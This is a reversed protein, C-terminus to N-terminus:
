DFCVILCQRGGNRSMNDVRSMVAHICSAHLLSIGGVFLMCYLPVVIPFFLMYVTVPARYAIVTSDVSICTGRKFNASVLNWSRMNCLRIIQLLYLRNNSLVCVCTCTCVCLCVCVCVHLNRLLVTGNQSFTNGCTLVVHVCAPKFIDGKYAFNSEAPKEYWIWDCHGWDVEHITYTFYCDGPPIDYERTALHM